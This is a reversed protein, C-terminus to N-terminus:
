TLQASNLDDLIQNDSMSNGLFDLNPSKDIQNSKKKLHSRETSM